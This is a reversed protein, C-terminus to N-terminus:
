KTENKVRKRRHSEWDFSYFGGGNEYLRDVVRDGVVKKVEKEILNTILISPLMSGYRNNIIRFIITKEYDSGTQVGIEDIILLSIKSYKDIISKTSVGSDKRFSDKIDDMIKYMSTYVVEENKDIIELAIACAVHTKGTGPMGSLMMNIGHEKVKSYNEIYHIMAKKIKKQIDNEDKFSEISVNRYRKEIGSREKKQRIESNIKDDERKREEEKHCKPCKDFVLMKGSHGKLKQIEYLGHKECKGKSTLNLETTKTIKQNLDKM